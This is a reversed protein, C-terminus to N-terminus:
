RVEPIGNSSSIHKTEHASRKCAAMDPRQASLRLIAENPNISLLTKFVADDHFANQASREFRTLNNVVSVAIPEIILGGIKFKKLRLCDMADLMGAREFPVYVSRKLHAGVTRGDPSDSPM